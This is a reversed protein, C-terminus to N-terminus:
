WTKGSPERDTSGLDTLVREEYSLCNHTMFNSEDGAVPDAGFDGVRRYANQFSGSHLELPLGKGHARLGVFFGAFVNGFIQDLRMSRVCTPNFPGTVVGTPPPKGLM